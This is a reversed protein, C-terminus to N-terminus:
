WSTCIIIGVRGGQLRGYLISGYGGGGKVISFVSLFGTIMTVQVIVSLELLPWAPYEQSGRRTPSMMKATPHYKWVKATPAIPFGSPFVESRRQVPCTFSKRKFTSQKTRFYVNSQEYM